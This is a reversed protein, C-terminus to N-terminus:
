DRTGQGLFRGAVPGPPRESVAKTPAYGHAALLKLDYELRDREKPPNKILCRVGGFHLPRFADSERLVYKMGEFEFELKKIWWLTGNHVEVKLYPSGDDERFRLYGTAFVQKLDAEGLSEYPPTAISNRLMVAVIGMAAIFVVAIITAVVYIEYRRFIRLIRERM